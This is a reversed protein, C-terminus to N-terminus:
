GVRRERGAWYPERLVNKLVKGAGSLPLAERFEVSRPCKYRAINDACYAMLADPAPTSGPRSVVVAHVAEGWRDSPIGIVACAAVDPHQALVNEVEASYINEGGSVIMDKIRDAIYIFGDADMWAADGTHMWGDRIAEATQESRNWYGRMVNPGRVIVEGVEGRPLERGQEDVVRVETCFGARGAARHKGSARGEARHTWAPNVTALPALETMGYAQIFGTKPFADLARSLTADSIPSAGYIIRELPTPRALDHIAPHDLLMGIMTPVLLTHTVGYTNVAQVFRDPTFAPIFVHTNGCILHVLLMALDAVHFMPAAHLYIAGPRGVDDAMIALASVMMNAHSLMVGKPFGTTGGTYFIGALDTGGRRADDIAESDAILTEYDILRSGEGADMDILQQLDPSDAAAQIALNRFTADTLLLRAGSDRLSYAIEASSWRINCPTIVGGAWVTALLAELYRDSNLGLIAVRDEPQLGLARFAGALRAVRNGLELFSRQRGEFITALKHPHQQVARHLGHTIDM